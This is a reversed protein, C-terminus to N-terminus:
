NSSANSSRCTKCVGRVTIEVSEVSFGVRHSLVGIDKPTEIAVDFVGKCVSCVMHQHEQDLNPDFRLAGIGLDIANLEGMEVLEGLTQYVTKLSVTSMETVLEGFVSEASPHNPNEFLIQFIKARQPTVKKGAARFADTLESPSKM